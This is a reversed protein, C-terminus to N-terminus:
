KGIAPWWIKRGEVPLYHEQPGAGSSEHLQQNPEDDKDLKEQVATATNKAIDVSKSPEEGYDLVQQDAVVIDLERAIRRHTAPRGRNDYGNAHSMKRKKRMKIVDAKRKEAELFRAYEEEDDSDVESGVQNRGESASAAKTPIASSAGWAPKDPQVDFGAELNEERIQRERYLAYIESHRFMAIQEDTLTRKIGDPYYGLGDDDEDISEGARHHDDHSKANSPFNRAQFAKLDDQTVTPVRFESGM